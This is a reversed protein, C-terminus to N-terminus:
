VQMMVRKTKTSVDHGENHQHQQGQQEPMMSRTASTNGKDAAYDVIDDM